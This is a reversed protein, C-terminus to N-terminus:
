DRLKVMMKDLKNKSTHFATVSYSYVKNEFDLASSCILNLASDVNPFSNRIKITRRIHKNLREIWNTTYIMRQAKVPFNLYAFYYELDEEKFKNRMWSYRVEWKEIFNDLRLKAKKLTYKNKELKFVKALDDALDRKDKSRVKLLINRKKHVICRQFQSKPLEEKIVSPLGILGDAVVLLCRKLGRSKLDRMVERWGESTEQPINYVGLIERKFNPKLGLVIYFAEKEVTDRRVPVFLADIFIATYESELSKNQWDKREQEFEKTINSVSSSSLKKDYM